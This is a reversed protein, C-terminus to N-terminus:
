APRKLSLEAVKVQYAFLIPEKDPSAIDNGFIEKMKDLISQVLNIKRMETLVNDIQQEKFTNSETM